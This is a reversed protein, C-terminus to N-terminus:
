CIEDFPDDNSTIDLVNDFNIITDEFSIQKKEKDVKLIKSKVYYIYGDLYLKFYYEINPKFNILIRNIKEEEDPTLEPKSEKNKEYIAQKIYKAHEVLSSFPLYKKMGRDAM